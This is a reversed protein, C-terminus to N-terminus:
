RRQRERGSARRVNCAQAARREVPQLLERACVARGVVAQVVDHVEAYGGDALVRRGVRRQRADEEKGARRLLQNPNPHLNPNPNPDTVAATVSVRVRVGVGISGGVRARRLLQARTPVRAHAHPPARVRRELLPQQEVQARQVLEGLAPQRLNARAAAM